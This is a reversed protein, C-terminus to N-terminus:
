RRVHKRREPIWELWGSCAVAAEGQVSSLVCDLTDPRSTSTAWGRFAPRLSDAVALCFQYNPAVQDFPLLIVFPYRVKLAPLQFQGASDTVTTLDAHTCLSDPGPASLAVRVGALPTGDEYRYVGVVPPAWTHTNPIPLCAAASLGVGAAMRLLM